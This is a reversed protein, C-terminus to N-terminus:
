SELLALKALGQLSPELDRELTPANEATAFPRLHDLIAARDRTGDLAALLHRSIDDKMHVAGHCLNTVHSQTRSQLRALASARPRESVAAAFQPRHTHLQFLGCAFFGLIMDGLLQGDTTHVRNLLEDFSLVAPWADILAAMASKAVPHDSPTKEPQRHSGAGIFFQRMQGSQLRRKLPLQARCLLTQRFRRCKLFDLFQEKDIPDAALKHLMSVVEPSESSDLMEFFDAEGLYQLRHRSANRVFDRFYVPTQCEALEDHYLSEPRRTSLTEVEHRLLMSYADQSPRAASLFSLLARAQEIREQPSPFRRAHYQLMEGIMARVHAGPYAAYSIYAVGHPNLCEGCIALMREQVAPPVWSYVGHALIYDFKGLGEVSALIDRCEIRANVLGLAEIMQRGAAVGRAGLDLGVFQSDRLTYAMPILNGGDACGLELVRCHEIPAPDMGFLRAMTSLRDPHCQAFPHGPYLVEDYPNVLKISEM